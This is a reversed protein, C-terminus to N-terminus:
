YADDVRQGHLADDARPLMFEFKELFLVLVVHSRVPLFTPTRLELREFGLGRVASSRRSSSVCPISEVSDSRLKESSESVLVSSTRSESVILRADASYRAFSCAPFRLSLKKLLADLRMEADNRDALWLIDLVSDLTLEFCYRLSRSLILTISPVSGKSADSAPLMRLAPDNLPDNLRTTLTSFAPLM